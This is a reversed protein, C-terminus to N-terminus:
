PANRTQSTDAEGAGNPPPPSDYLFSAFGEAKALLFWAFVLHWIGQLLWTGFGNTRDRPQEIDLKLEVVISLFSLGSWLIWLGFLRAGVVFWDRAGM